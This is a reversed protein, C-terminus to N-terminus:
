GGSLIRRVTDARSFMLTKEEAGQKTFVRDSAFELLSDAEELEMPLVGHLAGLRLNSWHSLFDPSALRRAYRLIGYSRWVQDFFASAPGAGFMAKKQLSEEKEVVMRSAKLFDDLVQEDDERVSAAKGLIFLRGPNRSDPQSVPTLMCGLARLSETMSRLQKLFTLLPLHLVVSARLGSGTMAPRYSLYGLRSDKAFEDKGDAFTTEATRVAVLLAPLDEVSGAAKFVLHEDMNIAASFASHENHFFAPATMRKFNAPLLAEQLFTLSDLTNGGGQGPYIAELRNLSRRRSETLDEHHDQPCFRLDRYNRGLALEATLISNAM